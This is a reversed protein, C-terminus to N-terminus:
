DAYFNKCGGGGVGLGPIHLAYCNRATREEGGAIFHFVGASNDSQILM